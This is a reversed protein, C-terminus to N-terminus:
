LYTVLHITHLTKLKTSEPLNTLYFGVLASTRRDSGDRGLILFALFTDMQHSSLKGFNNGCHIDTIREWIDGNNMTRYIGGFSSVFVHQDVNVAMSQVMGGGPGNTAQWVQALALAPALAFLILITRM